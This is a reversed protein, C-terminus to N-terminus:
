CADYASKWDWFGEADSGGFADTMAGRLCSTDIHEGAEIPLLLQEAVRHIAAARAQSCSAAAGVPATDSPNPHM